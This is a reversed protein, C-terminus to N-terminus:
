LQVESVTTEHSTYRVNDQQYAKFTELDIVVIGFSGENNGWGYGGMVSNVISEEIANEDLSKPLTNIEDTPVDFESDVIQQASRKVVGITEVYGEDGGGDYILVLSKWGDGQLVKFGVLEQLTFDDRESM